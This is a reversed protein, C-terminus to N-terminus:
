FTLILGPSGFLRSLDDFAAGGIVGIHWNQLVILFGDYAMLFTSKVSFQVAWEPGFLFDM